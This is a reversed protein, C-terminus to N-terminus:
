GEPVHIGLVSINVKSVTIGTMNQVADKVAAQAQECVEKLRYNLNVIVGLDIQAVGGSISIRVPRSAMSAGLMRQHRPLVSLSHIGKLEKIAEDVITSVVDESIHLSSQATQATTEM